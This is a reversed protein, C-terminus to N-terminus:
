RPTPLSHRDRRDANAGFVLAQEAASFAAFPRELVRWWGGDSAALLCIPWDPGALLREPGLADTVADPYPRLPAESWGGWEAETVELVETLSVDVCPDRDLSSTADFEPLDAM